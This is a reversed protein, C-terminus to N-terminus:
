SLVELGLNLLLTRPDYSNPTLCRQCVTTLPQGWSLCIQVESRRVERLTVGGCRPCVFSSTRSQLVRAIRQIDGVRRRLDRELRSLIRLRAKGQTLEAEVEQLQKELTGRERIFTDLRDPDIGAEALSKRWEALRQVGQANFGLLQYDKIFEALTATKELGLRQLGEKTSIAQKLEELTKSLKEKAQSLGGQIKVRQSDLEKVKSDLMHVRSQKDDFERVVEQYSKRTKTELETFKMASGIFKHAVVNHESSIKNVINVFGELRELSVDLQNIRDLLRAGRAVDLVSAGSKQVAINLQRLDDIDAAKKRAENVLENMAGLSVGTKENIARYTLGNLWLRLARAKVEPKLVGLM